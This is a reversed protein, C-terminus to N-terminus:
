ECYVDVCQGLFESVDYEIARVPRGTLPSTKEAVRHECGLYRGFPTLDDLTLDQRILPWGKLLSAEPGAM